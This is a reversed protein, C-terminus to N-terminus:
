KHVSHCAKCNTAKKLSDVGAKDGAVVRGAAAIVDGAKKMWSAKEGKEPENEWLAVYLDLLKVKDSQQAEGSLVKKLLGEKHAKQMVEKISYKPEERDALAVGAVIWGLAALGGLVLVLTLTLRRQM